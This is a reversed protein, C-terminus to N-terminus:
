RRRRRSAMERRRAARDAGAQAAEGQDGGAIHDTFSRITPFRYLDTLAIPQEFAAKLERHMRVVLLSHGGIDFFNDDIGVRDKGLTKQWIEAIKQETANEPEVYVTKSKAQLDDPDPLAKRDIKGNPTIPM